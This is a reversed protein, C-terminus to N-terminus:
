GDKSADPFIYTYDTFVDLLETYYLRYLSPDTECKKYKCLYFCITPVVLKWPPTKMIKYSAIVHPHFGVEDLHREIMVGWPNIAKEKAEYTAVIDSQSVASYAHNVENSMLKVCYQLSLRAMRM